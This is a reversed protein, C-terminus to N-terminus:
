RDYTHTDGYAFIQICQIINCMYAYTYVCVYLVHFNPSLGSNEAVEPSRSDQFYLLLSLGCSQEIQVAGASTLPSPGPFQSGSRVHHSLLDKTGPLEHLHYPRPIHFTNHSYTNDAAAGESADRAQKRRTKESM